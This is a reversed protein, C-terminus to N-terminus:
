SVLYKEMDANNMGGVFFCVFFFSSERAMKEYKDHQQSLSVQQQFHESQAKPRRSLHKIRWPQEEYKQGLEKTEQDAESLCSEHGHNVKNTRISVDSEVKAGSRPM